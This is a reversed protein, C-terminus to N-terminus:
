IEFSKIATNTLVILCDASNTSAWDVQKLIESSSTVSDAEDIEEDMRCPEEAAYQFIYFPEEKDFM